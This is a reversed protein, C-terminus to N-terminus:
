HRILAGRTRQLRQQAIRLYKQNLDCGLWRRGLKKAVVLTTGAGAFPDFVIGPEFGADCGCGKLITPRGDVSAASGYAMEDYRQVEDPTAQVRGGWKAALRGLQKDRIRINFAGPRRGSVVRQKPVGCSRCVEAPCSSKIPRVCLDEPYVAFHAEPFPRTSIKWFDGPNPGATHSAHDHWWAKLWRKQELSVNLREIFRYTAERERKTNLVARFGSSDMKSAAHKGAVHGDVMTGHSAGSLIARDFSQSDHGTTLTDGPNKGLPHFCSREGPEPPNRMSGIKKLGATKSRWGLVDGPNKGDSRLLRLAGRRRQNRSGEVMGGPTRRGLAISSQGDAPDFIQHNSRRGLGAALRLTEQPVRIADLDYFYRKTKVFHFVHEYKNSLRDKVSSPLGNPKYWIIDNRMIWGEDQIATAVRAPMMLLQKPQLWSGDAKLMRNPNRRRTLRKFATQRVSDAGGGANFCAGKTSCYTDGLNLYVSGHSKLVRKLDALIAVLRDIYEQPHPELGLQGKVGYDRLGWYPPSTMVFDISEDPLKGIFRAADSCHIKGLLSAIDSTAVM